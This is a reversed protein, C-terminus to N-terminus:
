AAPGGTSCEIDADAQALDCPVVTTGTPKLKKGFPTMVFFLRTLNMASTLRISALLTFVWTLRDRLPNPYSHEQLEALDISGDEAHHAQSDHDDSAGNALRANRQQARVYKFETWPDQLGLLFLAWLLVDVSIVDVGGMKFWADVTALVVIPM